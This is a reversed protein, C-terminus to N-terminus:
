FCGSNSDDDGKETKYHKAIRESNAGRGDNSILTRPSDNTITGFSAKLSMLLELIAPINLYKTYGNIEPFFENFSPFKREM